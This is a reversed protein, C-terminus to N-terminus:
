PSQESLRSSPREKTQQALLTGSPSSGITITAASHSLGFAPIMSYMGTREDTARAINRLALQSGIRRARPTDTQRDTFTPGVEERKDLRKEVEEEPVWYRSIVVAGPDVKELPTVGRANGSRLSEEDVGDFTAFRHDYQHFLKAEYLPLHRRDGRVFVNANLHWGESVLQERTRFM